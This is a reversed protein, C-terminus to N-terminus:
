GGVAADYRAGVFDWDVVNLFAAVYDARKNQYKLYYAHEWVDVVLLPVTGQFTLDQHKEAQIVVLNGSLKELGLIGWGSGEVSGSVSRFLEGFGEFSGFSLRIATALNGKPAGGGNPSMCNWFLVHLAHGSGNFALERAWHKSFPRDGEGTAISRLKESAMNAGRVYGAHHIDHHLRMTQEDIHPELADYAYPLPPLVYTGDKYGIMSEPLAAVSGEASDEARLVGGLGLVAAGAGIGKLWDRRSLESVNENKMIKTGDSSNNEIETQFINRNAM